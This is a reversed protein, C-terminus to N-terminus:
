EALYIGPDEMVVSMDKQGDPTFPELTFGDQLRIARLHTRGEKRLTACYQFM